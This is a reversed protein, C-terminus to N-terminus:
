MFISNVIHDNRLVEVLNETSDIIHGDHVLIPFLLLLFPRMYFSNEIRDDRLVEILNEASDIITGIMCFPFYYYSYPLQEQHLEGLEGEHHTP